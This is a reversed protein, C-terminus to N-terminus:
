PTDKDTCLINKKLTFFKHISYRQLEGFAVVSKGKELCQINKTMNETTVQIYGTEDELIFWIGVPGIDKIKGKIYFDQNFYNEPNLLLLKIDIFKKKPKCSPISLMILILFINIIQTKLKRM